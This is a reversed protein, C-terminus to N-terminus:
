NQKTKIKPLFRAKHTDTDFSKRYSESRSKRSIPAPLISTWGSLLNLYALILEAVLPFTLRPTTKAVYEAKIPSLEPAAPPLYLDRRFCSSCHHPSSKSPTITNSSHWRAFFKHGTPELLGVFVPKVTKSSCFLNGLALTTYADAVPALSGLFIAYMTLSPMHPWPVGNLSKVSKMEATSFRPTPAISITAISIFNLPKNNPEKQLNNVYYIYFLSIIACYDVCSAHEATKLLETLAEKHQWYTLM